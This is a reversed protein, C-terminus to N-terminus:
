EETTPTTRQKAKINGYLVQSQQPSKNQSSPAPTSVHLIESKSEKKATTTTLPQTQPKDPLIGSGDVPAKRSFNLSERFRKKFSKSNESKEGEKNHMKVRPVPGDGGSVTARHMAGGDGSKILPMSDPLTALM